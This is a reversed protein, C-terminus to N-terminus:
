LGICQNAVNHPNGNLFARANAVAVRMLSSRAARTAWAIHPTVICNKARLLPNDSSPPESSLVDVAAGAIRGSDLAAALAREDILGGRSTNILFAAPKMLELRKADVLRETEPTLPCHLTIVDSERLVKELDVFDPAVAVEAVPTTRSHVLVNMGFAAALGAVARGIKGYGIIGLTLGDLEILPYDWFCFDQSGTWRGDRVSQAHHGAHHAMELILAMTHQAVSRTGYDPVNTVPIGRARAAKVDVINYGTALVGIYKLNPLAEISERTLPTKNTLVIEANAARQVVDAPSTRDHISCEGLSELEDWSLDGPNLTHGDLVVIKM